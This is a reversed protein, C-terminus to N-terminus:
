SSGIYSDNTSERSSELTVTFMDYDPGLNDSSDEGDVANKKTYLGHKKHYQRRKYIGVALAVSVSVVLLVCLLVVTFGLWFPNGFWKDEDDENSKPSTTTNTTATTSNVTTASNTTVGNCVIVCVNLLIYLSIETYGVSM